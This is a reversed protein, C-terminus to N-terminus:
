LLGPYVLGSQVSLASNKNPVSLGPKKMLIVLTMRTPTLYNLLWKPQSSSGSLTVYSYGLTFERYPICGQ